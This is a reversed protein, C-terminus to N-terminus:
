EKDTEHIIVASRYVDKGDIAISYKISYFVEEGDEIDLISNLYREMQNEFDTQRKSTITKVKTM